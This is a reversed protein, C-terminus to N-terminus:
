NFFPFFLSKRRMEYIFSKSDTDLTDFNNLENIDSYPTPFLVGCGPTARMKNSLQTGIQIMIRFDQLNKMVNERGLKEITADLAENVAEYLMFDGKEKQKWEESELYKSMGPTLWNPTASLSDCRTNTIPRYNFLVDSVGMGMIMSLVVLSEDLREYIGIFNYEHLINEIINIYKENTTTQNSIKEPSLFDLQINTWPSKHANMESIFNEDSTDARGFAMLMGYHSIARSNPDRVLTWLFSKSKNRKRINFEHAKTHSMPKYVKCYDGYKFGQRRSERAAFRTTIHALTSSGTKPVKIYFIGDTSPNSELVCPFRLSKRDWREFPSIDLVENYGKIAKLELKRQVVNNKNLNAEYIVFSVVGIILVSIFYFINKNGNMM